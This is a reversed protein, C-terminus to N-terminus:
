SCVMKKDGKGEEVEKHCLRCLNGEEKAAVSFVNSPLLAGVKFGHAAGAKENFSFVLANVRSHYAKRFISCVMRM